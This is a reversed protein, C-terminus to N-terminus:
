THSGVLTACQGYAHGGVTNVEGPIFGGSVGQPNGFCVLDHRITNLTVYPLSGPDTVTVYALTVSGRITNFLIGVWAATQGIVTVTGGIKDNKISWPIDGGGGLLTVTGKITIGNLLVTNAGLATINGKVTITSHGDPEVTCAHGTHVGDPQCGLGLLAGKAAVVNRGITITSPASQADLTADAGVYVGGAVKIVADAAVACTGTVTISAYSGSPIDGGKCTYPRPPACHASAAATGSMMLAVSGAAIALLQRTRRM